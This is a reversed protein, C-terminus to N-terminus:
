HIGRTEVEKEDARKSQLELEAFYALKFVESMEGTSSQLRALEVWYKNTSAKRKSSARELKGALEHIKTQKM